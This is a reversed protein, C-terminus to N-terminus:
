VQLCDITERVVVFVWNVLASSNAQEMLFDILNSGFIFRHLRSVYMIDSVIGLLSGLFLSSAAGGALYIAMEERGIGYRAFAEEGFVSHLGEM